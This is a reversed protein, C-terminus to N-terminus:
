YRAWITKRIKLEIKGSIATIWIRYPLAPLFLIHALLFPLWGVFFPKAGTYSMFYQSFGDLHFDIEVDYYQDVRRYKDVFRDLLLQFRDDGVFYKDLEVQVIAHHHRTLHGLELRDSDDTWHDLAVRKSKELSVVRESHSSM